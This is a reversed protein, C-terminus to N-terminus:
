TSKWEPRLLGMIATDWRENGVKVSSRRVGEHSFGIKTYTRIAPDNWSYVNLEAREIEPYSFAKELVAKLMPVALGQGRSNPAIMVRAIRAVGNRWDLALQVHGVLAQTADAAMWCLRKPPTTKGEILMQELQHDTIPYTLDPGGWQVLDRESRLWGGLAAFHKNELDILTMIAATM